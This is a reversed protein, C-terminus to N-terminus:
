PQSKHHSLQDIEKRVAAIVPYPIQECAKLLMQACEQEGVEAAKVNVIGQLKSAYDGQDHTLERIKGDVFGMKLAVSYWQQSACKVVASLIAALDSIICM